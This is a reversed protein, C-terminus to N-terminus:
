LPISASSSRANQASEWQKTEPSYTKILRAPVGALMSFAGFSRTVVSNAGVLCHEGLSVGPMIAARYGLFCRPGIRVPGKSELPQQMIPGREPHLGHMLDTVYVHESLVCGDGISIENIATLYAHRGVYVDNGIVIRPRYRMGGYAELASLYGDRLIISRDGLSICSAGHIVCPRHIFADQGYRVGGPRYLIRKALSRLRKRTRPPGDPPFSSSNERVSPERTPSSEDAVFKSCDMNVCAM